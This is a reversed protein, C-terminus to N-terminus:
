ARRRRSDPEILTPAVLARKTTQTRPNERSEHAERPYDCAAVVFSPCWDYVFLFRGPILDKQRWSTVARTIVEGIGEPLAYGLLRQPLRSLRSAEAKESPDMRTSMPLVALRGPEEKACGYYTVISSNM